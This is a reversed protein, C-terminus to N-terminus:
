RVGSRPYIPNLIRTSGRRYPCGEPLIITSRKERFEFEVWGTEDIKSNLKLGLKRQLGRKVLLTGFEALFSEYGSIDPVQASTYEYAQFSGAENLFYHVPRLQSPEQAPKLPGLSYVTGNSPVPVDKLSMVEGDTIDFHKHILRVSVGCPVNHKRLVARLANLNNAHDKVVSAVENLRPLANYAASSIFNNKPPFVM